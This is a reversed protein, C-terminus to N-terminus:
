EAGKYIIILTLVLLILVAVANMTIEAGGRGAILRLQGGLVSVRLDRM